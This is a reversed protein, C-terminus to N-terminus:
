LKNCISPLVDSLYQGSELMVHECGPESPARRMFDDWNAEVFPILDPTGRRTLRELWDQKAEWAPYVVTFAVGKEVLAERIAMHGAILLVCRESLHKDIAKMYDDVFNPNRVTRPTLWSYPTSDLDIVPLGNMQSQAAYTKGVCTFGAIVVAQQSKSTM